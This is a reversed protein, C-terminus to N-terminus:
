QTCKLHRRIEEDSYEKPDKPTLCYHANIGMTNMQTTYGISKAMMDGDLWTTVRHHRICRMLSRPIHTTLLAIAMYDTAKNIRIASLADEVLVVREHSSPAIFYLHKIGKSKKTLYKVCGHKVREEKNKYRVERGIWGMLKHTYDNSPLVIGYTQCPIIVRQYAQSWGIGHELIEEDMVGTSWMWQWAAIPISSNVSQMPIFDDPLQVKELVEYEPEHKIRKLKAKVEEPSGWGDKAFFAYGCRFCHIYWGDKKRYIQCAEASAGTQSASCTEGNEKYPHCIRKTYGEAFIGQTHEAVWDPIM